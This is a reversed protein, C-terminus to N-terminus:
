SEYTNQMRQDNEGVGEGEGQGLGIIRGGGAPKVEERNGRILVDWM